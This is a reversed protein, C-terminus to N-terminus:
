RKGPTLTDPPSLENIIPPIINDKINKVIFGIRFIIANGRLKTVNPRKENKEFTM